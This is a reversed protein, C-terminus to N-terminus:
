AITSCNKAKDKNPPPKPDQQTQSDTVQIVRQTSSSVSPLLLLPMKTQLTCSPCFMRIFNNTGLAIKDSVTATLLTKIAQSDSHIFAGGQLEPSPATGMCAEHHQSTRSVIRSM